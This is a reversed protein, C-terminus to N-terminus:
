YREDVDMDIKKIKDDTDTFVISVKSVFEVERAETEGELLMADKGYEIDVGPTEGLVGKLAELIDNYKWDDRNFDISSILKRISDEKMSVM